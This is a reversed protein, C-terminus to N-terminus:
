AALPGLWLGSRHAWVCARASQDDRGGGDDTEDGALRENVGSSGLSCVDEIIRRVDREHSSEGAGGIGRVDQRDERGLPADRCRRRNSAKGGDARQHSRLAAVARAWTRIELVVQERWQCLQHLLDGAVDGTFPRGTCNAGRMGPALGVILLASDKPGFSDVPANHWDGHAARAQHRLDVLRPCLPCDRGPTNTSKAM